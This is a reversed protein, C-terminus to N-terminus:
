FAIVCLTESKKNSVSGKADGYSSEIDFGSSLLEQRLRDYTYAQHWNHIAEVNGNEDILIFRELHVDDGYPIYSELCLHPEKRFFGSQEKFWTHIEERNLFAQPTFVDFLFRGDRRLAQRIKDLLQKRDDPPLVAFDCYLLLVLDYQNTETLSLYDQCVFDIGPFQEKAYRISRRSIDVGKVKYGRERLRKAYLGPGCGLDLVKEYHEPPLRRAIFDASADMFAATRSAADVDPALHAELMGKSIHEDDWFDTTHPAFPKPKDLLDFLKKVPIV